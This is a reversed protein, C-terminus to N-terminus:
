VLFTLKEFVWIENWLRCMLSKYRLLSYAANIFKVHYITSVSLTQRETNINKKERVLKITSLNECICMEWEWKEPSINHTFRNIKRYCLFVFGNWGKCNMQSTLNQKFENSRTSVRKAMYTINFLIFYNCRKCYHMFRNLLFDKLIICIM